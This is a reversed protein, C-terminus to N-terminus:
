RCAPDIVPKIVEVELRGMESRLAEFMKEDEYIGVIAGGSGTFKASAGVSRAAEVMALNGDSLRYLSKRLDFNRDLLPGIESGKGSTLMVGLNSQAVANGQEASLKYLEFARAYDQPHATSPALLATATASRLRRYHQWGM